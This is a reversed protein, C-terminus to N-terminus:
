QELGEKLNIVNQQMLSLYTAGAELEDKSLNHCSHLLVLKAGTEKAIAEAAKPMSLEEHFIVKSGDAKMDDIIDAVLRASPETQESCSDYPSEYELGYRKTFYYMAFRGGFYIKHRAGNAAVEEFQANLAELEKIYSQANATYTAANDPDIECVAELINNVMTMANVPDTWIHPDYQHQHLSHEDEHDAEEGDEHDHNHDETKDLTIGKSADLVYVSKEIGEALTHAWPEMNEGTYIFLASKNLEIVDAPTPEYTHSETGPPLLLKVDMLGNTIQRAFDYQPFLSAVILKKDSQPKGACASFPLM